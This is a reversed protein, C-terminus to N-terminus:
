RQVPFIFYYERSIEHVSGVLKNVDCPCTVFAVIHRLTVFAETLQCRLIFLKFKEAEFPLYKEVFCVFYCYALVVAPTLKARTHVLQFRNSTANSRRRTWELGTWSTEVNIISELRHPSFHSRWRGRHGGFVPAERVGVITASAGSHTYCAHYISASEFSASM